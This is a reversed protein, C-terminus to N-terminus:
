SGAVPGEPGPRSDEMVQHGRRWSRAVKAGRSLSRQELIMPRAGFWGGSEAWSALLRSMGSHRRYDIEPRIAPRTAERRGRGRSGPPRLSSAAASQAVGLKRAAGGLAPGALLRSSRVFGLRPAIRAAISRSRREAALRQRAHDTLGPRSEPRRQLTGDVSTRREERAGEPANRFAAVSSREGVCSANRM